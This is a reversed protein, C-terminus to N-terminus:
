LIICILGGSGENIIRGLTDSLKMRADEPMHELKDYLGDNVLEYLTKGFMNSEWITKDGDEFERLLYRVMEESQAETGVIPNIETEITARIMHVSPARACLRVGYGGGQRVVEPAELTMDEIDPMVIGYGHTKVDDLAERVKDYEHKVESLEKLLRILEEESEINFGTLEGITKYYIEGPINLTIEAKGRGLDTEGASVNEICGGCLGSFAGVNIIDGMKETKEACIRVKEYIESILPHDRDLASLWAPAKVKIERVPFEYLVLELIKTIDEADMTLCSVLAVPAKYKEELERALEIAGDSEPVASNLIVAFPKGMEHLESAVRAEAEVYDARRIEGFSGDTTVLMGITSHENIVKKTGTEAAESFPIPEARWPTSVMRIEGDETDGLAGPVLYGVCDVMKVKLHAGGSLDVEVANEPIFKPETTMVTRGAASQPMEDRTRMRDYENEINPMVLSTLFRKIFTSKGTRVPGVVGIYIDGGTREAIDRYINTETMVNGGNKYKGFTYSFFTIRIGFIRSMKPDTKNEQDIIRTLASKGTATLPLM